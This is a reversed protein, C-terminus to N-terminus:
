FIPWFMGWTTGVTPMISSNSHRMFEGNITNGYMESSRLNELIEDELAKLAIIRGNPLGGRHNRHLCHCLLYQFESSLM